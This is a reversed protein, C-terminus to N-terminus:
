GRRRITWVWVAPSLGEMRLAWSAPNCVWSDWLRKFSAAAWDSIALELADCCSVLALNVSRLTMLGMSPTTVVRLTSGPATTVVPLVRSVTM